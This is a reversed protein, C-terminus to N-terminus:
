TPKPPAVSVSTIAAHMIRAVPGITTARAFPAGFPV